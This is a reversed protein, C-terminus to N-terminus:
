TTPPMSVRKWHCLACLRVALHSANWKAGLSNKHKQKQNWERNPLMAYDIGLFKGIFRQKTHPTTLIKHIPRNKPYIPTNHWLLRGRHQAPRRKGNGQHPKRHFRPHRPIRGPRQTTWCQPSFQYVKPNAISNTRNDPAHKGCWVFLM